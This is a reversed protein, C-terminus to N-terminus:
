SWTIYGLNELRNFAQISELLFKSRSKKQVNFGISREIKPEDNNNMFDDKAKKFFEEMDDIM